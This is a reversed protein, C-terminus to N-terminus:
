SADSARELVKQHGGRLNTMVMTRVSKTIVTTRVLEGLAVILPTALRGNRVENPHARALEALSPEALTENRVENSGVNGVTLVFGPAAIPLEGHHREVIARQLTTQVGLGLQDRIALDLGGDMIGFSNAPSVWRTPPTISTIVRSSRSM